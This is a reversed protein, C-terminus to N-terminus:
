NESLSMWAILSFLQKHMIQHAIRYPHGTSVKAREGLNLNKSFNALLFIVTFILNGWSKISQILTKFFQLNYNLLKSPPLNRSLCILIGPPATTQRAYRLERTQLKPDWPAELLFFFRNQDVLKLSSFHIVAPIISKEWVSEMLLWWRSLIYVEEVM